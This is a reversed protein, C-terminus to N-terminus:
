APRTETKLYNQFSVFEEFYALEVDRLPGHRNKGIILEAVNSKTSDPDDKDERHIFLVMDADQEMSGSERLHHLKPRSEGKAVAQRSLQALAIIPIRLELALAKIGKSIEAVQQERNDSRRTSHSGMLQLYDIIVLDLGNEKKWRRCRSRIEVLSVSGQDDIGLRSGLEFIERSARSLKDFDGDTMVGRRIASSNIRGHIAFLRSMLQEKPMELTFMVASKGKMVANLLCNLAFATKGMGPRAALIIMDGGRWGGTLEDLDRFGSPVGPLSNPDRDLATQIQDITMEVIRSAPMLGRRDQASTISLLEKEVDEVFSELTGDCEMARKQVGSTTHIIQRLFYMRRVIEAYHEINQAVPCSEMLDVLYPMGISDSAAESAQLRDALTVVDLVGNSENFIQVMSSFIRHHRELFFHEPRLIDVVQNLLGNDRIVAGLVAKEAEVSFPLSLSETRIDATM